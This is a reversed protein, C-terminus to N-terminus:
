FGRLNGRSEAHFAKRNRSSREAHYRFVDNGTKEQSDYPSNKQVAYRLEDTALLKDCEDLIFYKLRNLKLTGEEFLQLVRGPTGVVIKPFEASKPNLIQRDKDVPMGGYFVATKAHPLYKSFREYEKNNQFALERTHCFVLCQVFKEETEELQQLVAIVFVATKGMGSKAQCILDQGLIALPICQHQVESPHEFGNDQIARNLEPKLLFDRFGSIHVGTHTQTKPKEKDEIKPAEEEDDPEFDPLMEESTM